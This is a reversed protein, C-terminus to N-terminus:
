AGAVVTKLIQWVLVSSATIPYIAELIFGMAMGTLVEAVVAVKGELLILADV